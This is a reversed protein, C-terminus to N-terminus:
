RQTFFKAINGKPEASSKRKARVDQKRKKAPQQGHHNNESPRIVARRPVSDGLGENALDQAFHFDDHERRLKDLSEQIDPEAHLNSPVNDVLSIRRKCRECLFSSATATALNDCEDMAVGEDTAGNSKTRKRMTSGSNSIVICSEHVSTDGEQDVSGEAPQPKQFFGEIRRQGIEMSDIGSFSLSVGTIKMPISLSTDTGILEKWLKDGAAAIADVTIDRVFPFPAQKSRLADYGLCYYCSRFAATIIISM